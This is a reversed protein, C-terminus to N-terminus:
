LFSISTQVKKQPDMSLLIPKEQQQEYIEQSLYLNLHQIEKIIIHVTLHEGMQAQEELRNIRTVELYDLSVRYYSEHTSTNNLLQTVKLVFFADAFTIQEKLVNGSQIRVPTADLHLRTLKSQPLNIVFAQSAEHWYGSFLQMSLYALAPFMSSVLPLMSMDVWSALGATLELSTVHPYQVTDEPWVFSNNESYSRPWVISLTNIHPVMKLFQYVLRPISDLFICMGGLDLTLSTAQKISAAVKFTDLIDRANNGTYFHTFYSTRQLKGYQLKNSLLQLSFKSSNAIANNYDYGFQTNNNYLVLRTHLDVKSVNSATTHRSLIQVLYADDEKYNITLPRLFYEHRACLYSLFDSTFVTKQTETWDSLNAYVFGVTMKQLGVLNEIIFHITNTCFSTMTLKLMKIHALKQKEEPSRDRQLLGQDEDEKKSHLDLSELHHGCHALIPLCDSFSDINGQQPIIKLHRLQPFMSVFRSAGGMETVYDHDYLALETMRQRLHHMTQLYIRIKETSLLIQNVRFVSLSTWKELIASMIHPQTFNELDICNVSVTLEQVNPFRDILTHIAESQLLLGARSPMTYAYGITFKKISENLTNGDTFCRLFEELDYRSKLVVHDLFARRAPVYWSKCVRQCEYNNRASLHSFIVQWIEPPISCITNNPEKTM